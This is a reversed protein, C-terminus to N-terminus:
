TTDNSGGEQPNPTSPFLEDLEKRFDKVEKDIRPENMDFISRFADILDKPGANRHRSNVFKGGPGDPHHKVTEDLVVQSFNHISTVYEPEWGVSGIVRTMNVAHSGKECPGHINHCQFTLRVTEVCILQGKDSESWDTLANRVDHTMDTMEETTDPQACAYLVATIQPLTLNQQAYAWIMSHTLETFTEREVTM